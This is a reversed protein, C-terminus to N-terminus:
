TLLAFNDMPLSFYISIGNLKLQNDRLIIELKMSAWFTQMQNLTFLTFHFKVQVKSVLNFYQKFTIVVLVYVVICHMIGLLMNM